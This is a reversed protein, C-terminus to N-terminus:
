DLVINLSQIINWENIRITLTLTDNKMSYIPAIVNSINPDAPTAWSSFNSTPVSEEQFIWYLNSSFSVKTPEVINIVTGDVRHITQNSNANLQLHYYGNSDMPLRADMELIPQTFDVDDEKTCSAILMMLGILLFLLLYDLIKM